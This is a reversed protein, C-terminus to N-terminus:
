EFNVERDSLKGDILSHQSRLFIPDVKRGINRLGRLVPRTTVHQAPSQQVRLM